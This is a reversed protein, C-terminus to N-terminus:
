AMYNLMHPSLSNFDFSGVINASKNTKEAIILMLASVITLAFEAFDVDGVIRSNGRAMATAAVSVSAITPMRVTDFCPGNVAM